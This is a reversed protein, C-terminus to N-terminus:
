ENESAPLDAGFGDQVHAMQQSGYGAHELFQEDILRMLRLTEESEATPERYFSSQDVDARIRARDLATSSWSRDDDEESGPEAISPKRCFIGNWLLSVLRPRFSPPKAM